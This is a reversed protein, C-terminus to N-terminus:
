VSMAVQYELCLPYCSLLLNTFILIIIPWNKGITRIKILSILILLFLLGIGFLVYTGDVIRGYSLLIFNFRAFCIATFILLVTMLRCFWKKSKLFFFILLPSYLPSFLFVATAGFLVFWLPFTTIFLAVDDNPMKRCEEQFLAFFHFVIPSSKVGGRLNAGPATGHCARSASDRTRVCSVSPCSRGM